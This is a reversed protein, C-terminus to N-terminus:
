VLLDRESRKAALAKAATARSTVWAYDRYYASEEEGRQRFSLDKLARALNRAAMDGTIQRTVPLGSVDPATICLTWETNVPMNEVTEKKGFASLGGHIFLLILLSFVNVLLRSKM